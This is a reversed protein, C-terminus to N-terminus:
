VAHRLTCLICTAVSAGLVWLACAKSRERALAIAALAISAVGLIPPLWAVEGQAGSRINFPAGWYWTSMAIFSLFLNTLSLGLSSLSYRYSRLREM